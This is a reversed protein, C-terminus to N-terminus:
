PCFEYEKDEMMYGSTYGEETREGAPSITLTGSHPTNGTYEWVIGGYVGSKSRNRRHKQPIRRLNFIELRPKEQPEEEQRPEPGLPEKSLEFYYEFEEPIDQDTESDWGEPPSEYDWFDDGEPNPRKDPEEPVLGPILRTQEM